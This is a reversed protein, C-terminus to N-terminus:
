RRGRPHHLVVVRSLPALSSLRRTTEVGGAGPMNPDMIVVDPTLVYAPPSYGDRRKRSGRRVNVGEEELLNRSGTGFLDHDDVM